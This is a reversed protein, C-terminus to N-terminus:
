VPTRTEGPGCYHEERHCNSCLVECLKFEELIRKMSINSLTRSDLNFNKIDKNHHFDIAAICKNYGCKECGGGRSEILEKKRQLATKTQREYSNSNKYNGKSKCTSSCFKKQNGTLFNECIVCKLNNSVNTKLKHKKLWHRITSQSCKVKQAIKAISLGKSIYKELELKKMIIYIYM